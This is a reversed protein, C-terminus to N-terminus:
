VSLNCILSTKRHIVVDVHFICGGGGTLRHRPKVMAGAKGPPGTQKGAAGDAPEALIGGEIQEAVLQRLEAHASIGM